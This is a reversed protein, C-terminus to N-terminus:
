KTIQTERTRLNGILNSDVEEAVVKMTVEVTNKEKSPMGSYKTQKQTAYKVELHTSNINSGYNISHIKTKFEFRAEEIKLFPIQILSLLPLKISEEKLEFGSKDPKPASKKYQVIYEAVRVSNPNLTGDENREHTLGVQTIVNVTALASQVQANMLAILPAGIMSEFERTTSLQSQNTDPM